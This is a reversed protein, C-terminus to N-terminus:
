GSSLPRDSPDAGQVPFHEIAGFKIYEYPKAVDMAGHSLFLDAIFALVDSVFMVDFCFRSLRAGVHIRAMHHLRSHAM